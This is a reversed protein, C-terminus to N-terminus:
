GDPMPHLAVGMMRWELHILFVASATCSVPASLRVLLPCHRRAAGFGSHGAPTAARCRSEVSADSYFERAQDVPLWMRTHVVQQIRCSGPRQDFPLASFFSGSGTSGANCYPALALAPGSRCAWVELMQKEGCHSAGRRRCLVDWSAQLARRMELRGRKPGMRTGVTVAGRIASM